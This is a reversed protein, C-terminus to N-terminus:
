SANKDPIAKYQTFLELLLKCSKIHTIERENELTLKESEFCIISWIIATLTSHPQPISKIITYAEHLDTNILKALALLHM